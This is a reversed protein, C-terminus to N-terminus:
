KAPGGGPSPADPALYGARTRVTLKGKGPSRATVRISRYGGSRAPNSSVYGITYQHRIESAISGCAAVVDPLERPFFAEGGTANALRRLVAPNGDNDLADFIGITYILANSQQATKLVQPLTHISANDRGDSIVVLAKKESSGSQLRQQALAIADYLATLGSARTNSIARALEDSRNSFSISAPLGLTVKENFNVVFMEDNPSSSEVFTRAAATVDDLKRRMSGSHDVVLGITVPVDEQGFVRVTQRVGGEYVEFDQQSLGPVFHGARDRVSARLEVLDVSVSLRYAGTDQPEEVSPIQSPDAGAVGILLVLAPAFFRPRFRPEM